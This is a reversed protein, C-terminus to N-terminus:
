LTAAKFAFIYRIFNVYSKESSVSRASNLFIELACARGGKTDKGNM